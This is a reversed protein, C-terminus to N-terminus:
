IEKLRQEAITKENEVWRLFSQKVQKSLLVLNGIHKYRLEFSPPFILGALDHPIPKNDALVIDCADIIEVQKKAQLFESKKM